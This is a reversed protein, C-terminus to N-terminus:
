VALNQLYLRQRFHGARKFNSSFDLKLLAPWYSGKPNIEDVPFIM